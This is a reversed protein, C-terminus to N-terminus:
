ILISPDSAGHPSLYVTTATDLPTSGGTFTGGSYTVILLGVLTKNKPYQPFKVKALTTGEVGMQSTVTGASDIFFCFVNYSSQTITGVLAPMNTSAAIKVLVGGACAYWDSAGIKALTSGGASIVLGAENFAFSSMRDVIPELVSRISRRDKEAAIGALYRTMTDLM